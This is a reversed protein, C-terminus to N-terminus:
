GQSKRKMSKRTQMPPPLQSHPKPPQTSATPQPKDKFPSYPAAVIAEREESWPQGPTPRHRQQEHLKDLAEGVVHYKEWNIPPCRVVVQSNPIRKFKSISNQEDSGMMVDEDGDEDEDEDSEDEFTAKLPNSHDAEHQLRGMRLEEVFKEPEQIAADRIEKLAQIDRKAKEKQLQLVSAAAKLATVDPNAEEDIPIPAPRQIFRPSELPAGPFGGEAATVSPLKEFSTSPSIPSIPPRPIDGEDDLNQSDDYDTSWSEQQPPHSSDESKIASPM